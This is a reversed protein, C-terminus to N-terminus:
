EGKRQHSRRQAREDLRNRGSLEEGLSREGRGRPHSTKRGSCPCPTPIGRVVLRRRAVGSRRRAMQGLRIGPPLAPRSSYPFREAAKSMSATDRWTSCADLICEELNARVWFESFFTIVASYAGPALIVEIDSITTRATSTSLFRDREPDSGILHRLLSTKGAGTTGVLLVRAYGEEPRPIRIHDERISWSDPIGAQIGDYFAATVIASFAREAENRKSASWWSPESLLKNMEEILRDAEADDTTGLGKRVKRGPAGNTEPRLPHRFSMTWGPRDQSRTKSATYIPDRM